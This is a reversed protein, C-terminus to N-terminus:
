YSKGDIVAAYRSRGKVAGARVGDHGEAGIETDEEM